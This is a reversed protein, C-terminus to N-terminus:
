KAKCRRELWRQLEDNQPRAELWWDIWARQWRQRCVRLNRTTSSAMGDKRGGLYNEAALAPSEAAAEAAACELIATKRMTANDM